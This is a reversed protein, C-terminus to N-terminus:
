TFMTNSSRGTISKQRNSWALLVNQGKFQLAEKAHQHSESTPASLEIVYGNPDHFYISHIVGHDIPKRVYKGARIGKANMARLHKLEVELPIHLDFDPQKKFVFDTRPPDLFTIYSDDGMGFFIHLVDTQRGTETTKIEFADVLTIGFLVRLISANRRCRRM